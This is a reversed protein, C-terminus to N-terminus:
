SWRSGTSFGMFGGGKGGSTVLLKAAATGGVGRGRLEETLRLAAGREGAPGTGDGPSITEIEVGMEARLLPEPPGKKARCPEARSLM